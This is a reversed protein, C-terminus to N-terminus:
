YWPVDTPAPDDKRQAPVSSPAASRAPPELERVNVTLRSRKSGDKAEWAHYRLSGQVTVKMGKRLWKEVADARTGWMECDVFCPDDVWQDGSKRRNNVAVSFQLVPTGGANRLEPDRTINGCITVTNIAM